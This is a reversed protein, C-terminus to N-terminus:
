LHIARVSATETHDPSSSQPARGTASDATKRLGCPQSDGTWSSTLPDMHPGPASSELRSSAARSTGLERTPTKGDFAQVVTETYAGIFICTCSPPTRSATPLGITQTRHRRRRAAQGIGKQRRDADGALWVVHCAHGQWSIRDRTRLGTGHITRACPQQPMHGTNQPAPHWRSRRWRIKSVRIELRGGLVWCM